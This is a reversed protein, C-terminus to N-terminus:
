LENILKELLEQTTQRRKTVKDRDPSQQHTSLTSQVDQIFPDTQDVLVQGKLGAGSFLDSIRNGWFVLALVLVIIIAAILWSKQFGKLSTPM